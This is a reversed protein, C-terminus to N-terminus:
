QIILKGEGVLGGTKSIVKYMYVGAAQNSLDLQATSANINATYVKQGLANYVEMRNTIGLEYNTISVSFVGNSPNPFVKVNESEGKVENVALGGPGAPVNINDLYLQGGWYSRNEFSFMVSNQGYVAAPLHIYETRWQNSTPYFGITDNVNNSIAPATALTAGGKLYINTWTMGGDLSYYVALSDSYETSYPAYAVDFYLSDNTVNTFNYAPTYIQQHQGGMPNPPPPQHILYGRYGSNFNYFLMCGSSNGFGGAGPQSYLQWINGYAQDSSNWNNPNNLYWGTPPFTAGQFTQVLPLANSISQVAINNLRKITDAGNTATVILTVDYSGPTNYTIVPNQLTSTGPSGGPFSWHWSTITTPTLSEDTFHVSVGQAVSTYNAYFQASAAPPEIGIVAQQLSDFDYGYPNLTSLAFYGNPSGGWGWNMFFQSSANYGEVLWTHGLDGGGTYQIIRGHNLENELVSDWANNTFQGQYYGRITYRNYGFFKVYSTQCSVSDAGGNSYSNPCVVQANSGGGGYNMDISVGVDYMLLAVDNNNGNITDPMNAWNYYDPYFNRSIVGYDNTYQPTNENYTNSLLGHAPYKWYQMVQSQATACCGTVCGGPAMNNFPFGQNWVINTLPPVASMVRQNNNLNRGNTYATWQNTINATAALNKSQIYNLQKAYGKMWSAFEPSPNANSYHGKDYYGLIPISANNAAVIVFGDNSNINFVYYMATGEDGMATYELTIVNITKSSNQKYFNSAVTQAQTATVTSANAFAAFAFLAIILTTIKEMVYNTNIWCSHRVVFKTFNPTNVIGKQMIIQACGRVSLTLPRAIQQLDESQEPSEVVIGQAFSM